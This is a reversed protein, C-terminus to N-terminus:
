RWRDVSSVRNIRSKRAEYIRVIEKRDRMRSSAARCDWSRYIKGKLSEFTM